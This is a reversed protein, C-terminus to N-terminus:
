YKQIFSRVEITQARIEKEQKLQEDVKEQQQKTLTPKKKGKKKEM